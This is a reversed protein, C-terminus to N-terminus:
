SNEKGYERHENPIELTLKLSHGMGIAFDNMIKLESFNYKHVEKFVTPVSNITEFLKM